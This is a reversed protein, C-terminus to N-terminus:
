SRLKPHLHKQVFHLRKLLTDKDQAILAVHGMKRNPRSEKKGYFYPYCGPEALIEGLGECYLEGNGEEPGLINLLAATARPNTSGLPWHKLVRILQGFQSSDHSFTTHHGSNHVRPAVENILLHNEKTWFLEVALVGVYNLAECLQESLRIAKAEISPPVDAPSILYNLLNATHFIMEVPAYHKMQGLANRVVIVALEKKIKVQKELYCPKKFGEKCAQQTSSFM